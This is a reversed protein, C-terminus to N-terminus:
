LVKERFKEDCRHVESIYELVQRSHFDIFLGFSIPGDWNLPKKEIAKMMESTGHVALTVPELGDERFRFNLNRSITALFPCKCTQRKWFTTALVTNM